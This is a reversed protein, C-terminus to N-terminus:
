DVVVGRELHSLVAADLPVYCFRCSACFIDIAVEHVRSIRVPM